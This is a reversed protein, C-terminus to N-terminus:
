YQVTEFAVGLEECVAEAVATSVEKGTRGSDGADAWIYLLSRGAGLRTTQATISLEDKTVEIMMANDKRSVVEIDDQEEILRAFSAYVSAADAPVTVALTDHRSGETHVMLAADTVQGGPLAGCGTILVIAFMITIRIVM